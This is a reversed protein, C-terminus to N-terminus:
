AAKPTVQRVSYDLRAEWLEKFKEGMSRKYDSLSEIDSWFLISDIGNAFPTSQAQMPVGNVELPRVGWSRFFIDTGVKPAGFGMMTSYEYTKHALYHIGTYIDKFLPTAGFGKFAPHITLGGSYSVDKGQMIRTDIILKLERRQDESLFNGLDNLPFSTNYYSCTNYSVIKSCLIPISTKKECLIIHHGIFDHTGVPLFRNSHKSLYGSRKLKLLNLFIQGIRPDEIQDFFGSVVIIELDELRIEM